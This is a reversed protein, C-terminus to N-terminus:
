MMSLNNVEQLWSQGEGDSPTLGSTTRELVNTYLKKLRMTPSPPPCDWRRVSSIKRCLPASLDYKVGGQEEVTYLIDSGRWRRIEKFM